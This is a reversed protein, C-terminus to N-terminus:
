FSTHYKGDVSVGGVEDRTVSVSWRNNIRYDGQVIETGPQSLDTSFTFLFDKSVRQQIAVRASPNQNGGLLPDIQLSSIGALHQLGGTVQGAVQSAIISDTSNGAASAESTTEGNAILSIIDTTALPPDSSYSTTLKDFPGRLGLTLNYQEITTTVSVDLTPDTQVPNDFNIIGRQLQYRVSRYFLEGSTLDTRGIIVPDAATGVVRLNVDGGISIQSSSASLNSKSQLGVALKINDAFGPTSPLSSGGLQDSFKSLDFDPTFSLSDILVLGDITSAAQTGTLSLSADLQSRLGRPYRLRVSKGQLTINFQLNPRYSISGGASVQGGGVEGTLGTLQLSNDVMHVTGNLKQLSLHAGSTSLAVDQFHLQGQLAPNAATGSAHVDLAVTGSSQLDPDVLKLIRVDVSGQASFSPSTSGSLPFTGQVRLSTDTGKIEAPQLTIVSHAYDARIPTAASIELSQYSAKLIPINIHAEIKSINKLSGKLTGHLETEGQLGRPLTPSYMALLPGLPVSSTDITADTYYGDNLNIKVRSHVTAQAVQSDLSLEALHNAVQLQAKMQSVSKDRLQLQPVEISANLQPNDLTGQGSVSLTATGDIGLNREQLPGLTQLVIAPANLRVLYAKTGPTYTLSGSALGAALKVNMNTTVSTKDGSFTAAFLQIAQGYAQADDIRASGSGSPNLESGQVSIDASLEGALPYHTNAVQQLEAIPMKQVSLKGSISNSPLYQWARLGVNASLSARGQKASVLVANRVAIQSSSAQFGAQVTRWESGQVQLDKAAFEGSVQPKQLTGQLQANLSASGAVALSDMRKSGLASLLEALAHLDSTAAQLQLKSHNSVEGQLSATASPMRLSTNRFEVINTRGDYSAHIAGSLLLIKSTAESNANAQSPSTLTLDGRVIPQSVSRTWSATLTGALSSSLSVRKVDAQRISGQIARLSIGRLRTRLQGNPTSGLNRLSIDSSVSGGLTEFVIDTAKLTGDALAYRGQLARLNLRGQPSDLSLNVGSVQGDMSIGRLVSQGQTSRYHIAGRLSVDGVPTFPQAIASFDQTHIRVDYQGEVTPNSYNTWEANGTLESSGVKLEASQLSFQNPSAAFRVSLKHRFTPDSGCHLDGNDYSIAGLYRTGNPEFRINTQLHYLDATVPIKKDKYQIQGNRLLVHQVALDFVSTNSTSQKPAEPLNSKGERNVAIRAVPNEIVLQMLTFKRQLVSQIKLAVTIEDIHLLPPESIPEAGRLTIDHLHATLTSLRFSFSGVSASGGTAENTDEVITRIALRQFAATRLFLLAGVIVFVLLIGISALTWGIMKRWGM